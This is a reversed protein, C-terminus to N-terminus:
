TVRVLVKSKRDWKMEQATEGALWTQATSCTVLVINGELKDPHLIHSTNANIRWVVLNNCSRKSQSPHDGEGGELGADRYACRLCSPPQLFTLRAYFCMEVFLNQVEEHSLSIGAVKGLGKIKKTIPYPISLQQLQKERAVRSTSYGEGLNWSIRKEIIADEDPTMREEKQREKEERMHLHKQVIRTARDLSLRTKETDITSHDTLINKPSLIRLFEQEERGSIWNRSKYLSIKALVSSLLEADHEVGTSLAETTSMKSHKIAVRRIEKHVIFRSYHHLPVHLVGRSRHRPPYLM